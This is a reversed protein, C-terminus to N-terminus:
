HSDKLTGSSLVTTAKISSPPASMIEAESADGLVRERFPLQKKNTDKTLHIRSFGVLGRVLRGIVARCRSIMSAAYLRNTFLTVVGRRVM